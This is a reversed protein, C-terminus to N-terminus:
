NTLTYPNSESGDGILTIDSSLYLVPFIGQDGNYPASWKNSASQFNMRGYKVYYVMHANNYLPSIIWFSSFKNMWNTSSCIVSNDYHAKATGCNEMNSNSKVYESHSILGVHGNWQFTKEGEIQTALDENDSVVGGINWTHSVVFQKINNDLGNYYEENLYTLLESDKDVTGSYSGNTFKTPSGVMNVTSSWANCGYYGNACYTGGAGNSDIDRLNYGDFPRNGISENRVIKYTGDSEKAIIRWIEGNDFKIYNDPNKGKYVYRGSEYEDSYLGNGSSALNVEQGGITTTEGSFVPANPDVYQEYTLDLTVNTDKDSPMETIDDLFVGVIIYHKEGSKLPFDVSSYDGNGYDFEIGNTPMDEMPNKDMAQAYCYIADNDGCSLNGITVNGDISGLNSIEVIYDIESNPLEFGANFTASTPTHTPDSINYGDNVDDGMGMESPLITEINTIQINWSSSISSTGSIRLQSSFAAYGIGMLVVVACLGGIILNNRQRRSLNRM